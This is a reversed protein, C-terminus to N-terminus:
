FSFYTRQGGTVGNKEERPSDFGKAWWAEVEERGRGLCLDTICSQNLERSVLFEGRHDDGFWPRQKVFLVAHFSIGGWGRWFLTKSRESDPLEEQQRVKM